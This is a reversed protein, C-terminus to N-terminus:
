YKTPDPRLLQASSLAGPSGIGCICAEFKSLFMVMQEVHNSLGSYGTWHWHSGAPSWLLPPPAITSPLSGTGPRWVIQIVTPCPGVASVTPAPPNKKKKPPPPNKSEDIRERRKRGREKPPPGIYVSISDWLTTLGLVVLWGVLILTFPLFLNLDRM